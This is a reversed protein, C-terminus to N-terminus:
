AGTLALYQHILSIAMSGEGVASSVRKISDSRLDGACFVGPLNTELSLPVRGPPFRTVDRGTRVFGNRDRELDAPLWDTDARAGIMVFLADAKRQMAEEARTTCIAQLYNDGGVSVVQTHSEIRINNRQALQDILYQSMSLELGPGRVLLTVSHAYSSFFMAAQGASNGGGVIFVNKGIVTPAETKSAGYLIGKGIFSDIGEAELRRWKVGTALVITKTEVTIAEDIRVAYGSSAPSIAEVQRTMVIESGFRTAQKLARSALDEGSIGNPFGLYNEIRSSTGAQGGTANKEVLLVRLGESAGYVAAGLGAPGGGVIVVDQSYPSGVVQVRLPNNERMYDRISTVRKTMTQV